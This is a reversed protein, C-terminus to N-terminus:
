ESTQLRSPRNPVWGDPTLQAVQALEREAAVIVPRSHAEIAHTAPALDTLLLLAQWALVYYQTGYRQAAKALVLADTSQWALPDTPSGVPTAPGYMFSHLHSSALQYHAYHQELFAPQGSRIRADDVQQMANRTNPLGPLSEANAAALIPGYASHLRANPYRRENEKIDAVLLRRLRTEQETADLDASAWCLYVAMDLQSRSLMMAVSGRESAVLELLSGYLETNKLQAQLLMRRLPSAPFRVELAKVFAQLLDATSWERLLSETM